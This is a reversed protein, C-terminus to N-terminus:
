FPLDDDEVTIDETHSSDSNIKSNLDNVKDLLFADRESWDYIKEGNKKELVQPQPMGNPNNKTHAWKISAGDQMLILGVQKKGGEEKLLPIFELRKSVDINDAMSAFARFYSSSQKLQLQYREGADDLIIFCEQEDFKNTRTGIEKLSGSVSNYYNWEEGMKRAVKGEKITLYIKNMGDNVKSLAMHLYVYFITVM